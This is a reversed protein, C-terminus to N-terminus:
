IDFTAPLTPVNRARSLAPLTQGRPLLVRVWKDLLYTRACVWWPGNSVPGFFGDSSARPRAAVFPTKPLLGRKGVSPPNRASPTLTHPGAGAFAHVLLRLPQHLMHHRVGVQNSSGHMPPDKPWGLMPPDKSVPCHLTTYGCHLRLTAATDNRLPTADCQLTAATNGCHRVATGGCQLMRAATYCGHRLTADTDYHLMRAATYCGHRRTPPTDRVGLTV